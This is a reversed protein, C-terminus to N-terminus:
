PGLTYRVEASMREVGRGSFSVVVAGQWPNRAATFTASGSLDGGGRLAVRAQVRLADGRLNLNVTQTGTGLALHTSLGLPGSEVGLELSLGSGGLSLAAWAPGAVGLRLEGHLAGGPWSGNVGGEAWLPPRSLRGSAWGAWTPFRGGLVDVVSGKFGVQGSLVGLETTLGGRWSGSVSGDVRGTALVVGEVGGSFGGASTSAGLQLRRLCGCLLDGELRGSLGVPGLTSSLHVWGVAGGRDGVEFRTGLEGALGLLGVCVVAWLAKRM